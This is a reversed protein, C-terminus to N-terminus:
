PAGVQDYAPGHVPAFLPPLHSSRQTYDVMSRNEHATIQRVVNRHAEGAYAAGAVVVASTAAVAIKVVKRM